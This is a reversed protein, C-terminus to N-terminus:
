LNLSGVSAGGCVYLVQGTIFGSDPQVFFGTARAVDAPEGLRRVPLSSALQQEKDSGAPVVDHFMATSRIPGPAIVNVTVGIPGLELAWTRAMGMLGAKTASYASRTALGAAARSSLLVVRGFHQDRMTPLAAQVMQIACALHLQTLDDLDSLRVDPLLAARILGANHVVTNIPWDRVVQQLAQATAQRDLLDVQVAHLKPHQWSPAQVDLSVVECAQAILQECVARGIGASGGSVLAVQRLGNAALASM